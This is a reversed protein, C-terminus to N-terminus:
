ILVAFRADSIVSCNGEYAGDKNHKKVTVIVYDEGIGCLLLYKKGTGELTGLLAVPEYNEGTPTPCSTAAELAKKADETVYFNEPINWGSQDGSGSLVKVDSNLIETVEAGDKGNRVKLLSYTHYSAPVSPDSSDCLFVYNETDNSVQWFLMELVQDTDFNKLAINFIDGAQKDREEQDSATGSVPETIESTSSPVVSTNETENSNKGCAAFVILGAAILTICIFISLPKKM